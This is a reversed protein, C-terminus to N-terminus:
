ALRSQWLILDIIKVSSISSMPFKLRFRKIPTKGDDTELYEQIKNNVTDYIEVVKEIRNKDYASPLRLGLNALVFSDLVAKEPDLSAVLKSAFSAELRGQSSHLDRLVREFDSKCSRAEEFVAYFSGQWASDRRVRYFHNFAKQFERDNVICSNSLKSQIAEYKRLPEALRNIVADLNDLCIM